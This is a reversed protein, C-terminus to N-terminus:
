ALGDGIRWLHDWLDVHAEVEHPKGLYEVGAATDIIVMSPVDEEAATFLMFSGRGAAHAREDLPLIRVEINPRGAMRRLHMLQGAMVAPGGTQRELISADLLARLRLSDLVSQRRMRLGVRRAVEATSPHDPAVREVITAYAETQLLGPMVTTEFTCLESAGQELSVLHGLRSVQHGDFLGDHDDLARLVDALPRNLVEVLRAREGMQPTREGTEWRCVSRVNVDVLHALKRGRSGREERMEILQRRM